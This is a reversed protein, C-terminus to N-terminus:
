SKVFVAFSVLGLKCVKLIQIFSTRSGETMILDAACSGSLIIEKQYTLQEQLVCIIKQRSKLSEPM